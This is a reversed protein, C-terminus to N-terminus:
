KLWNTKLTTSTSQQAPAIRKKRPTAEQMEKAAENDSMAYAIEDLTELSVGKKLYHEADRLSKLKEYPAM